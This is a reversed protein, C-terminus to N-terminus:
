RIVCLRNQFKSVRLCQKSISYFKDPIKRNAKKDLTIYSRLEVSTTM